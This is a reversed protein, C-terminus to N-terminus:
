KFAKNLLTWIKNITSNAYNMIEKKAEEIHKITVKQIPINCFKSCTKKIQELTELDRKYSRPSTIKDLYKQDIYDKCLTVITEHSNDIYINNNIKSKIDTVRSKFAKVTENKRQKMTKRSNNIVYQFIWCKLTESYYLSGEGNGVSKTKKNRREM